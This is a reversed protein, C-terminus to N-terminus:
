FFGGFVFVCFGHEHTGQQFSEWVRHFVGSGNDIKKKFFSVKEPSIRTSYLIM